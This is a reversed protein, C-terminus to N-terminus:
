GMWSGKAFRLWFRIYYAGSAVALFVLFSFYKKWFSANWTFIGGMAFFFFPVGLVHRGLSMFKPYTLVSALVLGFSVFVRFFTAFNMEASTKASSKKLIFFSLPVLMLLSGYLSMLDSILVDNSGGVTMPNLFLEPYFGLRRGWVAQGKIFALPDAFKGECFIMMLLFAAVAGFEIAIFRKWISKLIKREKIFTAILASIGALIFFSQFPRALCILFSLLFVKSFSVKQETLFWLLSCALFCCLGESYGNMRFVALPSFIYFAAVINRFEKPFSKAVVRYFVPISCFYFITSLLSSLLILQQETFRLYSFVRLILPWLPSFVTMHSPGYGDIAIALYNGVDFYSGEYGFLRFWAQPLISIAIL